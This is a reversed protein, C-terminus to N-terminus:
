TVPATAPQPQPKAPEQAPVKSAAAAVSQTLAVKLPGILAELEALTSSDAMPRNISRKVRVWTRYGHRRALDLLVENLHPITADSMRQEFQTAEPCPGGKAEVNTIFAGFTLVFDKSRLQFGLLPDVSAILTVTEDFRKALQTMDPLLKLLEARIQREDEGTLNALKVLPQLTDLVCREALLRHRIELLDAIAKGLARRTESRTEFLRTCTSLLFGVAASVIAVIVETSM